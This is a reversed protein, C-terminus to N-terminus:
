IWKWDPSWRNRLIGSLLLFGGKGWRASGTRSFAALRERMRRFPFAERCGPQRMYLRRRFRQLLEEKRDHALMVAAEMGIWKTVILDM